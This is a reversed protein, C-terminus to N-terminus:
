PILLNLKAELRLLTLDAASLISPTTIDTTFTPSTAFVLLGTGTEDDMIALLESSADIETELLINVTTAAEVDTVDIQGAGSGWDIEADGISDNPLAIEANGTGDTTLTISDTTGDGM